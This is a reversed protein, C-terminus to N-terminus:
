IFDLLRLIAEKTEKRTFVTAIIGAILIGIGIYFLIYNDIIASTLVIIIVGVLTLLWSVTAIIKKM